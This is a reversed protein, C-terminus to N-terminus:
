EWWRNVFADVTAMLDKMQNVSEQKMPPGNYDALYNDIMISLEELDRKVADYNPAEKNLEVSIQEMQDSLESVTVNESDHWGGSAALIRSTDHLLTKMTNNSGDNVATTDVTPTHEFVIESTFDVGLKSYENQKIKLFEEPSMKVQVSVDDLSDLKYWEGNEDKKFTIWHTGRETGYNLMLSDVGATEVRQMERQINTDGVFKAFEGNAEAKKGSDSFIGLLYQQLVYENGGSKETYFAKQLESLGDWGNNIKTPNLLNGVSPMDVRRSETDLYMEKRLALQLTSTEFGRNISQKQPAMLQDSSGFERVMQNYVEMEGDYLEGAYQAMKDPTISVNQFFANFAHVACSNDGTGKQTSRFFKSDTPKYFDFEHAEFFKDASSKLASNFEQLKIYKEKPTTLTEIYELVDDHYKNLENLEDQIQEPMGKVFPPLRAQQQDFVDRLGQLKPEYTKSEEFESIKGNLSSIESFLTDSLKQLALHKEKESGMTDIKQLEMKYMNEIRNRTQIIDTSAGKPIKPLHQILEETSQLSEKTKPEFEKNELITEYETELRTELLKMRLAMANLDTLTFYTERQGSKTTQSKFENDIFQDVLEDVLQAFMEDEQSYAHSTSFFLGFQDKQSARHNDIVDQLVSEFTKKIDSKLATHSDGIPDEHKPGFMLFGTGREKDSLKIHLDSFENSKSDYKVFIQDTTKTKKTGDGITGTYTSQVNSVFTDVRSPPM